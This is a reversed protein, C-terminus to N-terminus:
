ILLSVFYVLFGIIGLGTLEIFLAKGWSCRDLERLKEKPFLGFTMTRYFIWGITWGVHAVLLDWGIYLLVRLFGYLFRLIPRFIDGILEDM